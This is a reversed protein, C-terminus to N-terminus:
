CLEYYHSNHTHCVKDTFHEPRRYTSSHSISGPFTADWEAIGPIAPIKAENHHGNAVIVADFFEESVSGMKLDKWQVRWETQSTSKVLSIDLVQTQFRILDRIDEAYGHLYERVVTHSPFLAVDDGFPTEWFQMM